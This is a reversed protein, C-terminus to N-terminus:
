AHHTNSSIPIRQVLKAKNLVGAEADRWGVWGVDVTITAGGLAGDGAVARNVRAIAVM